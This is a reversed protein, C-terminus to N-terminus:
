QLKMTNKNINELQLTIKCKIRGSKNDVKSYYKIKNIVCPLSYIAVITADSIGANFPVTYILASWGAPILYFKFV